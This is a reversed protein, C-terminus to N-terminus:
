DERYNGDHDGDDDGEEERDVDHQDFGEEEEENIPNMQQLLLDMNVGFQESVEMESQNQLLIEKINNLREEEVNSSYKEEKIRELNKSSFDKFWNIIGANQMEVTSIRQESTKGELDNILDQKETEKQRSLKDSIDKNYIWNPDTNEDLMNMLIDFFLESCKEISDKLELQGKEELILFLENARQSPLSQEDYLSEIYQIIRDLTYVIFFRKFMNSYLTKYHSNDDGNIDYIGGKYTEKMYDLLGKFCHSYKEDELYKYFGEYKHSEIFVENHLLFEKENIFEELNTENTESLKWHKPIDPSLVTGKYTKNRNNSLRGIIYFINDIHKESDNNSILFDNIYIDLNEIKGRNKKYYLLQEKPLTSDEISKEIFLKINELYKNKVGEVNSFVSRYEKKVVEDDEELIDKLAYLNKMIEYNYEGPFELFNNKEIFDFLRNEFLFPRDLNSIDQLPLKKSSVKYGMIKKFNEENIPIDNHCLIDREFSPDAVINLIFNDHSLKLNINGDNDFCYKKFLEKIINLGKEDKDGREYNDYIEKLEDYTKFPLVTPNKYSYFRKPTGNLLMGNWNNIKIYNYLEITNKEKIDKEIFINQIDFLTKRLEYYNIKPLKKEKKNWGIKILMNEILDGYQITQILNNITLSINDREDEIGHLHISYDLLRKYSENKMIDSYPIKLDSRRPNKYAYEFPRISSINEFSIEGKEKIALNLDKFNDNVQKNIDIIISNEQLPKFSSWSEKLYVSTHIDNQNQYYEKLKGRLKSNKLIYYGVTIFQFKAKKLTKYKKGENMFTSVNNWFPDKQHLSCTKEILSFIGNVTKMSIKSHIEKSITVWDTNYIDKKDWLNFIDKTKVDYPPSSVQLHFLVLYTIILFENNDILYRKFSEKEKELLIKNRRNLDRDKDTKAKIAKFKKSIEKYVPHKKLTNTNKYRLDILEEDNVTDFFDIITNKDFENLELSLKSSIIKIKKMISIQKDSLERLSDNDQKLVEKTNKPAGDSFGELLSFDEPCLYEGCVKCSIIGDKPLGGYISRLAVHADEDNDIKSSYIYHKCLLKSPSNKKYLYREDEGEFPERSFVDIYQKIYDNKVNINMISNIFQWSLDIKDDTSLLKPQKKQKKLVKKKYLKNYENIYNKTNEEIKKNIKNKTENDLSNYDISYPLLLTRLDAHNYVKSMLRKPINDIIDSINPLNNLTTGINDQKAFEDFFYSNITKPYLDSKDTKPGIIHPAMSDYNFIKNTTIYSYKDNALISSHYLPFVGNNEYTLNYNTHPVIYVGSLSLKEKGVINRYYTEGKNILPIKFEKRTKNLEFVYEGKLGHCPYKENCDRIYHGDHEIVIGKEKNYFPKTKYFEKTLSEYETTTELIDKKTKLEQEFNVSSIDDFDESIDDDEKYIKKINDVIPIIWKPFDYKGDKVNKLFPLKDNYDFNNDINDKLMQIYNEAIECIDLIMQKNKQANFLSILETILSEKREIMSYVKEKLEEVDLEIDDYINKTLFLKDDELDKPEIEQIKEFEIIDYQYDDSQLIINKEEDLYLKMENEDEDKFIIDKEKIEHVFIIKDTIEEEEEIVILFADGDNPTSKNYIYDEINEEDDEEEELEEDAFLFDPDVDEEFDSNNEGADIFELNGNENIKNYIDDDNLFPNDNYEPSFPSKKDKADKKIKDLEKEDIQPTKKQYFKLWDVNGEEDMPLGEEEEGSSTDEMEEEEFREDESPPVYKSAM